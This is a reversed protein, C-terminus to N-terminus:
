RRGVSRGVSPAFEAGISARRRDDVPNRHNRRRSAPRPLPIDIVSGRSDASSLRHVTSDRRSIKGAV